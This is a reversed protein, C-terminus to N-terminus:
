RWESKLAQVLHQKSSRGERRSHEDDRSYKRSNETEMRNQNTKYNMLEGKQRNQVNKRGAIDM